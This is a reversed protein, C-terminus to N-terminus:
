ESKEYFQPRAIAIRVRDNEWAAAQYATGTLLMRGDKRQTRRVSDGLAQLLVRLYGEQASADAQTTGYLILTTEGGVGLTRRMRSIAERVTKVSPAVRCSLELTTTEKTEQTSFTGYPLAGAAENGKSLLPVAQAAARTVSYHVEFGQAYASHQAFARLMVDAAEAGLARAAMLVALMLAVAWVVVKKRM